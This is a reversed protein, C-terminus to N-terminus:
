ASSLAGISPATACRGPRGSPTERRRGDCRARRPPRAPPTRADRPRWPVRRTANDRPNGSFLVCGREVVGKGLGDRALGRTHEAPSRSQAAGRAARRRRTPRRLVRAGREARARAFRPTHRHTDSHTSGRGEVGVRVLENSRHLSAHLGRQCMRRDPHCRHTCMSRCITNILIAALPGAWRSAPRGCAHAANMTELVYALCSRHKMSM